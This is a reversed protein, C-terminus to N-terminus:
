ESLFVPPSAAPGSESYINELFLVRRQSEKLHLQGFDEKSITGRMIWYDATEAPTLGGFGNFQSLDARIPKGIRIAITRESLPFALASSTL